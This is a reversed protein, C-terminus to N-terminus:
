CGGGGWEAPYELAAMFERLKEGRHVGGRTETELLEHRELVRKVDDDPALLVYGREAGWRNQGELEELFEHTVWVGDIEVGYERVMRYTIKM